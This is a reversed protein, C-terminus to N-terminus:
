LVNAHRNFPYANPPLLWPAAGTCTLARSHDNDRAPRQTCFIHVVVWLCVAPASLFLVFSSHPNSSSLKCHPHDLAHTMFSIFSLQHLGPPTQYQGWQRGSPQVCLPATVASLQNGLELGKTIKSATWKFMQSPKLTFLSEQPHNTGDKISTRARLGKNKLVKLLYRSFTTELLMQKQQVTACDRREYLMCHYSGTIHSWRSACSNCNMKCMRAPQGALGACCVRNQNLMWFDECQSFEAGLLIINRHIVEWKSSVIFGINREERWM